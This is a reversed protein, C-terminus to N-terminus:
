GPKDIGVHGIYFRHYVVGLVAVAFLLVDIGVDRVLRPGIRPCGLPAHPEPGGVGAAIEDGEVVLIPHVVLIKHHGGLPEVEALLHM